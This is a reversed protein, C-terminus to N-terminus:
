LENNAKVSQKHQKNLKRIISKRHRDTNYETNLINLGKTLLRFFGIKNLFLVVLFFIFIWFITNVILGINM